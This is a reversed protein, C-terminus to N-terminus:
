EDEEELVHAVGIAVVEENELDNGDVLYGSVECQWYWDGDRQTNKAFAPVYTPNDAQLNEQYDLEDRVAKELQLLADADSKAVVHTPVDAAEHEDKSLCNHQEDYVADSVYISIKYEKEM